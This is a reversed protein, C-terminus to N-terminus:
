PGLHLDMFVYFFFKAIKTVVLKTSLPNIPYFVLVHDIKRAPCLRYGSRALYCGEQRSPYAIM